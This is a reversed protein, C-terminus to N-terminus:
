ASLEHKVRATEHKAWEVDERVTRVTETPALGSKLDAMARKGLSMAVILIAAGVILASGWYSHILIGLVIVLAATVAMIGPLALGAAIGIKGGASGARAASEQLETKALQIEQQVLHTSDASLRKFLEGISLDHAMEMSRGNGEGARAIQAREIPIGIRQDRM